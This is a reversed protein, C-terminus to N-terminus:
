DSIKEIQWIVSELPNALRMTLPVNMLYAGSKVMEGDPTVVKYEANEDLGKLNFTKFQRNFFSTATSCIFLVSKSM